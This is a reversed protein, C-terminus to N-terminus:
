LEIRARIDAPTAGADRLSGLTVAGDRKSFKRGADDLVLAHHAYGPEPLRLLAQLLRQIHTAALLDEGRTVLSVQQFADDVVVALHYSTPMDKRAIVIDGFRVPDVPFRHGHECFTLPGVSAAAKSVDLRLAFNGGAAMRRLGEEMTLVKCTGPYLPGEPGHQAEGARAIEAAIEARTCFCPYVLGRAKLHALAEAYAGMRTSQRLTPEDWSLGLWKLDFFIAAIFKDRSRGKDIDEIRLLFDDGSEYATIAALAHGLHLLGTPSPAFRTVIM